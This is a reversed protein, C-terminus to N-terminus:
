RGARPNKRANKTGTPVLKCYFPMTPAMSLDSHDSEIAAIRPSQKIDSPILTIHRAINFICVDDNNLM